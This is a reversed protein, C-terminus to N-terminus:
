KQQQKAEDVIKQIDAQVETTMKQMMPMLRQMMLPMKEIIAKGAPSRYFTLIGDIEEETFLDSYLQVYLPKAKEYSLREALLAMTKRQVPDYRARDEPPIGMKRLQELEMNRAQAMSQMLMRDAHTLQLIEEVKAKKSAEDALMPSSCCLLIAGLLLASAHVKM